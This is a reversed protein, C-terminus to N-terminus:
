PDSKKQYFFSFIAVPFFHGLDGRQPPRYDIQAAYTTCLGRDVLDLIGDQGCIECTVPKVRKFFWVVFIATILAEVLM